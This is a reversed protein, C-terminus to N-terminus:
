KRHPFYRAALLFAATASVVSMALRGIALRGLACAFLQRQVRLGLRDIAGDVLLIPRFIGIAQERRV